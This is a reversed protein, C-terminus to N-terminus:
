CELLLFLTVNLVDANINFTFDANLRSYLGYCHCLVATVIMLVNPRLLDPGTAEQWELM